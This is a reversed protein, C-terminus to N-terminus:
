NFSPPHSDLECDMEVVDVGIAREFAEARLGQEMMAARSLPRSNVRYKGDKTLDAIYRQKM